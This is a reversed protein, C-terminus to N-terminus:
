SIVGFGEGSGYSEIIKGLLEVGDRASKIQPLLISPIAEEVVGTSEIYPDVALTQKNSFITEPSLVSVGDLGLLIIVGNGEQSIMLSSNIPITTINPILVNVPDNSTFRLLVGNLDNVGITYTNSTITKIRLSDRSDQYSRVWSVGNWVWSTIGATFKQGLDPNGPFNFM